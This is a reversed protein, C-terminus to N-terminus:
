QKEKESKELLQRRRKLARWTLFGGALAGFVYGYPPLLTGFVVSILVTLGIGLLADIWDMHLNYRTSAQM